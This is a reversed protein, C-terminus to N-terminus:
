YVARGLSAGREPLDQHLGLSRRSSKKKTPKPLTHKHSGTKVTEKGFVMPWSQGTDRAGTELEPPHVWTREIKEHGESTVYKRADGECGRFERASFQRASAIATQDSPIKSATEAIVWHNGRGPVENAGIEVLGGGEVPLFHRPPLVEVDIVPLVRHHVDHNHIERTILEERVHHINSHVTEHTIALVTDAKTGYM